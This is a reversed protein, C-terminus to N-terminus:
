VDNKQGQSPEDVLTYRLDSPLKRAQRSSRKRTQFRLTSETRVTKLLNWNEWGKKILHTSTYLGYVWEIRLEEMRKERLSGFDFNDDLSDLLEDDSMEEEKKKEWIEAAEQSIHAGEEVRECFWDAKDILKLLYLLTGDM